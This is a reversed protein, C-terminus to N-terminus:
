KKFFSDIKTTKLFATTHTKGLYIRVGKIGEDDSEAVNKSLM